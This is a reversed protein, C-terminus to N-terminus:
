AGAPKTFTVKFHGDLKIDGFYKDDFQVTQGSFAEYREIVDELHERLLRTQETDTLCLSSGPQQQDEERKTVVGKLEELYSSLMYSCLSASPNENVWQKADVYQDSIVARYFTRNGQDSLQGYEAQPYQNHWSEGDNSILIFGDFRPVKNDDFVDPVRHHETVTLNSFQIDTVQAIGSYYYYPKFAIHSLGRDINYRIDITPIQEGIEFRM